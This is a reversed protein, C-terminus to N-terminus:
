VVARSAFLSKRDMLLCVPGMVASVLFLLMAALDIWQAAIMSDVGSVGHSKADKTLFNAFYKRQTAFVACWIFFLIWDWIFAIAVYYYSVVFPVVAFIVATVLSMAGVTEALV